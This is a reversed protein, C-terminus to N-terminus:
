SRQNSQNTGWRLSLSRQRALKRAAEGLNEFIFADRRSVKFVQLELESLDVGPTEKCHLDLVLYLNSPSSPEFCIHTYYDEPPKLNQSDFFATVMAGQDQFYQERCRLVVRKPACHSKPVDPPVGQALVPSARDM